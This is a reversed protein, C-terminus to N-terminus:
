PELDQSLEALQRAAAAPDAAAVIPRGVVLYDAGAALAAQPSASRRQDDLTTGGQPRIGPVVRIGPLDALLPLEAAACVIGDAGSRLALAALRRVSQALPAAFGVQAALGEDLSTLLTVALLQVSSPLAQRVADVMAPGGAAHVTLMRIGLRAAAAAAAAATRPIDHLKLDLFVEGGQEILRSVLTPGCGVFGELGVKVLAAHPQVQTALRLAAEAGPVDLAVILRSHAPVLMSPPM